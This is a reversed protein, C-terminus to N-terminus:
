LEAVSTQLSAVITTLTEIMKAFDATTPESM